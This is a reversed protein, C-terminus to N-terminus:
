SSTASSSWPERNETSCSRSISDSRSATSLDRRIHDTHQRKAAALGPARANQRFRNLLTLDLRLDSGKDTEVVIRTSCFSSPGRARGHGRARQQQHLPRQVRCPDISFASSGYCSSWTMASRGEQTNFFAFEMFLAGSFAKMPQEAFYTRRFDSARRLLGGREGERETHAHHRRLGEVPQAPLPLERAHEALASVKRPRIVHNAASRVPMGARRRAAHPRQLPAAGRFVPDHDRPLPQLERGVRGDGAVREGQSVTQIVTARQSRVSSAAQTTRDSLSQLSSATSDRHSNQSATSGSSSKGGSIGHLAGFTGGNFVGMMAGGM